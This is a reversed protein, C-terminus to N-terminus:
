KANKLGVKEAVEGGATRKAALIQDIFPKVNEEIACFEDPSLKLEAKNDTAWSQCLADAIDTTTHLVGKFLACGSLAFVAVLVVFRAKM